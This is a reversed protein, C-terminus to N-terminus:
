SSATTDYVEIIDEDEMDHQKPTSNPALTEGDFRFSLNPLSAKVMKAYM